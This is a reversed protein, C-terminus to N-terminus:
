FFRRTLLQFLWGWFLSGIIAVLFFSPVFLWIALYVFGSALFPNDPPCFCMWDGNCRCNRNSTWWVFGWVPPLIIGWLGGWFVLSRAWLREWHRYNLNKVEVLSFICGGFSSQLALLMLDYFSMSGLYKSLQLLYLALFSSSWVMGWFVINFCIWLFVRLFNPLRMSQGQHFDQVLM